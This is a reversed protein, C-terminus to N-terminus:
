HSTIYILINIKNWEKRLVGGQSLKRDGKCRWSEGEKNKGVRLEFTHIKETLPSFLLSKEWEAEGDVKRGM